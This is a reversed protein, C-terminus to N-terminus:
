WGFEMCLISGYVYSFNMDSHDYKKEIRLRYKYSCLQKGFVLQTNHVFFRTESLDVHYLHFHLFM